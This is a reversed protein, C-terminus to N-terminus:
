SAHRLVKLIEVMALTDLECYALLDKRLQEEDGEYNGEFYSAFVASATQGEQVNLDQYSFEPALAPLVYKISHSGQMEPTYYWKKQFPVMLDVLRQIIDNLPVWYNTFATALEQLCGEEFSVNYVIVDGVEGCDEILQRIMAERYDAPGKPALYEKHTVTGDEQEIHVSYQFVTRQYPSCGQLMPVAPAMTEFDLYVLPYNLSGVFDQIREHDITSEGSREAEVQMRQAANLPYSDPIDAMDLIGQEMLEWKKTGWLGSVDFVSKEPINKWCHHQFECSYPDSCHPGINVKPEKNSNLMAKLEAVKAHVLLQREKVEEIRSDKTFLQQADLEGELVYATNIHVLSIDVLPLGSGTIVYYQVAMDDLNVPKLNTSSKVEYAHWGDEEKVLIDLAVFVDDYVFAAEYIVKTGDAILRQTQEVATGLQSYDEPTCDVGGPFLQQALEGVNTGQDFIRQQAAGIQPKLDPRNKHFYLNKHCQLGRLYSSKSLM